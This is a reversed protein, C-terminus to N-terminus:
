INMVAQRPCIYEFVPVACNLSAIFHGGKLRGQCIVKLHLYTDTFLVVNICYSPRERSDMVPLWLISTLNVSYPELTISECLFLSAHLLPEM